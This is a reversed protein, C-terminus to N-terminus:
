KAILLDTVTGTWYRKKFGHGLMWSGSIKQTDLKRIQGNRSQALVICGEVGEFEVKVTNNEEPLFWSQRSSRDYLKYGDPKQYIALTDIVAPMPPLTDNYNYSENEAGSKLRFGIRFYEGEPVEINLNISSTGDFETGIADIMTMHDISALPIRHPQGPWMFFQSLEEQRCLTALQVQKSTEYSNGFKVYRFARGEPFLVKDISEFKGAENQQYFYLPREVELGIMKVRASRGNIIEWYGGMKIRYLDVLSKEVYPDQRIWSVKGLLGLINVNGTLYRLYWTSWHNFGMSPSAYGKGTLMVIQANVPWHKSENQVLEKVSQHTMLYPSLLEDNKQSTRVMNLIVFMTFVALLCYGQWGRVIRLIMFIIAIFSITALALPMVLYRDVYSTTISSPGFALASLAITNVALVWLNSQPILKSGVNIGASRYNKWANILIFVILVASGFIYLIFILTESEGVFSVAREAAFFFNKWVRSSSFDTWGFMNNYDHNVLDTVSYVVLTTLTFISLVIWIDSRRRVSKPSAYWGTLLWIPLVLPILVAISSSFAACLLFMMICLCGLIFRKGQFNRICEFLLLATLIFFLALTPHSGTVLIIQDESIPLTGIALGLLVPLLLGEIFRAFIVGILGANAAHFGLWVIKLLAISQLKSLLSILALPIFNGASVIHPLGFLSRGIYIIDDLFIFGGFIYKSEMTLFSIFSVGFCILFIYAM